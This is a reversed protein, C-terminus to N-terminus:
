ATTQGFIPLKGKTTQSSLSDYGYVLLLTAQWYCHVKGIFVTSFSDSSLHNRVCANRKPHIVHHLYFRRKPKLTLRTAAGQRDQCQLESRALSLRDDVRYSAGPDPTACPLCAVGINVSRDTYKWHHM